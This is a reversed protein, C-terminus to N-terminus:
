PELTPLNGQVSVHSPCGPPNHLVAVKRFGMETKADCRMTGALLRRCRASAWFLGAAAKPIADRACRAHPEPEGFGRKPMSRAPCCLRLAPPIDPISILTSSSLDLSSSWSRLSCSSTWWSILLIWLFSCDLVEGGIRRKAGKWLLLLLFLMKSRSNNTSRGRELWQQNRNSEAKIRTKSRKWLANHQPKGTTKQM